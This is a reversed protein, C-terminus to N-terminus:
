KSHPHQSTQATEHQADARTHHAHAHRGRTQARQAVRTALDRLLSLRSEDAIFIFSANVITEEREDEITYM